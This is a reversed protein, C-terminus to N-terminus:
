LNLGWVCGLCQLICQLFTVGFVVWITTNFEAISYNGTIKGNAIDACTISTGAPIVGPNNKCETKLYQIAVYGMIYLVMGIVSIIALFMNCGCFLCLMPKNRNRAGLIGCMPILLAFLIGVVRAATAIAGSGSGGITDPTRPYPLTLLSPLTYPTCTCRPAPM